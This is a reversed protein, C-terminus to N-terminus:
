RGFMANTGGTRNALAVQTPTIGMSALADLYGRTRAYAAGHVTRNALTNQDTLQAWHIRANRADNQARGVELGQATFGHAPRTWRDKGTSQQSRGPSTQTNLGYRLMAQTQAGQNPKRGAPALQDWWSASHGASTQSDNGRRVPPGDPWLRNLMAQTAGGRGSTPTDNTRARKDNASPPREDGRALAATLLADVREADPSRQQSTYGMLHGQADFIAGNHVTLGSSGMPMVAQGVATNSTVTNTNYRGTVPQPEATSPLQTIDIQGGANHGTVTNTNYDHHRPVGRNGTAQAREDPSLNANPGAGFVGALDQTNLPPLPTGPTAGMGQSRQELWDQYSLRNGPSASLVYELYSNEDGPGPPQVAGLDPLTRPGGAGGAGGGRVGAYEGQAAAGAALNIPAPAGPDTMTQQAGAGVANEVLNRGTTMGWGLGRGLLSFGGEALNLGTQAASGASEKVRDEINNGIGGLFDGVPAGPNPIIDGRPPSVGVMSGDSGFLDPSLQSLTAARDDAQTADYLYQALQDQIGPLATNYMQDAQAWDPGLIDAPNYQETPLPIGADMFDQALSSPESTQRYLQGDINVIEGGPTSRGTAPDYTAGTPGLQISQEALYPEVLDQAQRMAQQWDVIQQPQNTQDFVTTSPLYPRLMDADAKAQADDPHADAYEVVQRMQAIADSTTGGGQIVSAVRGEFTGANAPDLYRQFQLTAPQQILENTVIPDFANTSYGGPGFLAASIDGFGGIDAVDQFYNGQKQAEEISGVQRSNATGPIQPMSTAQMQTPEFGFSLGQAAGAPFLNNLAGGQGGQMILYQLLQTLMAPDVGGGGPTYDNSM